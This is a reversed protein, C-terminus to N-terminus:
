ASTVQLINSSLGSIAFEKKLPISVPYPYESEWKEAKTSKM